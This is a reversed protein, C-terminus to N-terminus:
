ATERELLAAYDLLADAPILRSAGVKISRLKGSSMAEYIRTRGQSVIEGAETPRYFRKSLTVM